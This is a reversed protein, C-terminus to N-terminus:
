VLRQVTLEAIREHIDKSREDILSYSPMRRFSGYSNVTNRHASTVFTTHAQSSGSDERTRRFKKNRVYYLLVFLALVSILIVACGVAFYFINASNSQPPVTDVYVHNTIPNENKTCIKKRRLTLTTVNGPPVTIKIIIIVNVEASVVGSCPLTVAFTHLSSPVVGTSSINLKPQNLAVTNSTEM